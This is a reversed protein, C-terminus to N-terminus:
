SILARILLSLSWLELDRQWTLSSVNLLRCHAFWFLARALFQIQRCKIKYKGAELVRLFLHRKILGGLQHYKIIAAWASQPLRM